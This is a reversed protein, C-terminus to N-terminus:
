AAPSPPRSTSAFYSTLFTWPGGFSTFALLMTDPSTGRGHFPNWAISAFTSQATPSYIVNSLPAQDSLPGVWNNGSFEMVLAYVLGQVQNGNPDVSFIIAGPEDVYLKYNPNNTIVDLIVPNQARAPSFVGWCLCLFLAAVALRWGNSFGTM